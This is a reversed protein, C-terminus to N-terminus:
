VGPELHMMNGETADTFTELKQLLMKQLNKEKGATVIICL